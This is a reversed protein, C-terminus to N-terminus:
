KGKRYVDKRHGLRVVLVVLQRDRIDYLVRYDGVRIRWANEDGALKVSGVPRPNDALEAVALVIRRQAVIPLRKLAKEASPLFEVAYSPM